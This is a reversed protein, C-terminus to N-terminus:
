AGSLDAICVQTHVKAISTEQYFLLYSSTTQNSIPILDRNSLFYKVHANFFNAFQVFYSMEQSYLILVM